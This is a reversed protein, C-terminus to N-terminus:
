IRQRGQFEMPNDEKVNAAKRLGIKRGKFHLAEDRTSKLINPGLNVKADGAIRM